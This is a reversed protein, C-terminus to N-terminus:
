KKLTARADALSKKALVNGPNIALAKEYEAIAKETDGRKGYVLGVCLHTLDSNPEIALAKQFETMAPDLEGKQFYIAGLNHLTMANDPQIALSKQFQAAAEDMRGMQLLVNGFDDYAAANTPDGPLGKEYEAIAEDLRGQKSAIAALGLHAEANKADLAVVEQYKAMAEPLKGESMWVRAIGNRAMVSDPYIGLDKEYIARAEDAKGLKLLTAGMNLYAKAARPNIEVAKAYNELAEDNRGKQLLANGLDFYGDDNRPNVAIAQRFTAMAEDVRGANLQAVGLDNYGVWCAPNKALADHWFTESNEFVWARMWSATGLLALLAAAFSWRMWSSAAISTATLQSLWAGAFVLPGMSALYQFHDFVLSYQFITNEVLGLGPLLAVVFYAFVFFSAGLATRRMAWLFLLAAIVGALPVFSTWSVSGTAIWGPYVAALPHPWILKGLYFWVAEGAGALREPWTRMWETHGVDEIRGSMVLISIGTAVASLFSFPLTIAVNRWKWRGEMWWACLCLVVPLIVTSSKSAMAMAAFAFAGIYNGPSAANIKEGKAELWKLFFLITLLFFLGSEVNKMEAVWAVSEVQVPHLAWLAAGLWAGPVRLRMLVRWLLVAGAAHFLVNVIHYPWPTLGWVAHEVWFTTQTLPCIDAQATTWIEKLGLPGVISRNATLLLDDDWIYGAFIVPWYVAAITLLLLAGWWWDRNAEGAFRPGADPNTM